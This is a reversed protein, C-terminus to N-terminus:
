QRTVAPTQILRELTKYFTAETIYGSVTKYFDNAVILQNPQYFNLNMTVTEVSSAM